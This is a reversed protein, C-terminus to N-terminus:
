KLLNVHSATETFAPNSSSNKRYQTSNPDHQDNQGHYQQESKLAYESNRWSQLKSFNDSTQHLDSLDGILHETIDSEKRHAELDNDLANLSIINKTIQNIQMTFEM